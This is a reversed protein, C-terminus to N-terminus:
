ILHEYLQSKAEQAIRLIHNSIIPAYIECSIMKLTGAVLWRFWNPTIKFWGLCPDLGSFVLPPHHLRPNPMASGLNAELKAVKWWSWALMWLTSSRSSDWWRPTTLKDWSQFYLGTSKVLPIDDHKIPFFRFQRKPTAKMEPRNKESSWIHCEVLHNQGQLTQQVM